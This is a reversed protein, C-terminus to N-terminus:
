GSASASRGLVSRLDRGLIENVLTHRRVLEASAADLRAIAQDADTGRLQISLLETETAFEQLAKLERRLDDDLVRERTRLLAVGAEYSRQSLDEPLQYMQGKEELTQRDQLIVETMTRTLALLQRDQLELLVERQFAQREDELREERPVLRARDERRAAREDRAEDNRGALWYGGLGSAPPAIVGLAALWAPVDAMKAELM